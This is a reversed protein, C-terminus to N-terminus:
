RSSSTSINIIKYRSFIKIINPKERSTRCQRLYFHSYSTDTNTNLFWTFFNFKFDFIVMFTTNNSKSRIDISLTTCYNTLSPVKSISIEWIFNIRYVIITIRTTPTNLQSYMNLKTIFTTSSGYLIFESCCFTFVTFLDLHCLYNPLLLSTLDNEMRVYEVIIM